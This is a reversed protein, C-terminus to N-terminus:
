DDIDDDLCVNGEPDGNGDYSVKMRKVKARHNKFWLQVNKPELKPFKHRYECKNLEECYKDIMFASPHTDETFWKELKPIETLPDIFVRTRRKRPESSHHRHHHEQPSQRQHLPHHHHNLKNLSQQLSSPSPLPSSNDMNHRSPDQGQQLSLQALHASHNSALSSPPSSSLSHQVSTQTYFRPDMPYYAMALSTPLQPIHLSQGMQALSLAAMNAATLRSVNNHIASAYDVVAASQKMRFKLEEESNYSDNSNDDDTYSNSEQETKVQGLELERSAHNVLFGRKASSNNERALYEGNEQKIKLSSLFHDAISGGNVVPTSPSSFGNTIETHKNSREPGNCSPRLPPTSSRDGNQTNVSLSNYANNPRDPIEQRMKSAVDLLAPFRPTGCPKKKGLNDVPGESESSAPSSKSPSVSSSSKVMKEQSPPAKSSESSPRKTISLDYPEDISAGATLSDSRSDALLHPYPHFPIMYVANKNPLYPPLCDNGSNGSVMDVNEENEFSDDLVKSARRQAARANKFWYIINTLDLPRRGKRSELGNLEQMFRMMQERTPHQNDNFWKQLRPIEHEPDFSTRIRTKGPMLGLYPNSSHHQLSAPLHGESPSRNIKYLEPRANGKESVKDLFHKHIQPSISDGRRHQLHNQRLSLEYEDKTFDPVETKVFIPEESKIDFSLPQTELLPSVQTDPVSSTLPPSRKETTTVPKGFQIMPSLARVPPPALLTPQKVSKSHSTTASTTNKQGLFWENFSSCLHDAINLSTEGMLISDLQTKDIPCGAQLLFEKSKTLLLQLLKEKVDDSSNSRRVPSNVDDSSNSRRVPNVLKIKLTAVSTIEGLMEEVTAESNDTIASFSLTKWNKLQLCGKAGAAEQCSYGLRTLSAQVIDSFPTLGPLIAYSDMLLQCHASASEANNEDVAASQEVLCHIPLSRCNNSVVKSSQSKQPSQPEPIITLTQRQTKCPPLPSSSESSSIEAAKTMKAPCTPSGLRPPPSSCSLTVRPITLPPPLNGGSDSRSEDCAPINVVLPEEEADIDDIDDESIENINPGEDHHTRQGVPDNSQYSPPEPEDDSDSKSDSSAELASPTDCSSLRAQTGSIDCGHRTSIDKLSSFDQRADDHKLLNRETTRCLDVDNSIDLIEEDDMHCTHTSPGTFSDHRAGNNSSWTTKSFLEMEM